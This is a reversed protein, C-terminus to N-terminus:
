YMGQYLKLRKMGNNVKYKSQGAESLNVNDLKMLKGFFVPHGSIKRGVMNRFFFSSEQSAIELWNKLGVKVLHYLIIKGM